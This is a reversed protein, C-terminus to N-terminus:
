KNFLLRGGTYVFFLAIAINTAIVFYYVNNDCIHTNFYDKEYLQFTLYAIALKNWKCTRMAFSLVIMIFIMQKNYECHNGIAWSIPKNLIAYDDYIIIDNTAFAFACETFSILVLFCVVFPLSKALNILFMRIKRMGENNM